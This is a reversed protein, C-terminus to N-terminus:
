ASEESPGLVCCRIVEILRGGDSQIASTSQRILDLHAAHEPSVNEGRAAVALLTLLYDGRGPISLTRGDPMTLLVPEGILRRELAAIRRRLNV